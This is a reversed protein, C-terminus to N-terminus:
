RANKRRWKEIFATSTNERGIVKGEIGAEAMAVEIRETIKRVIQRQSGKSRKLARELVRYRFPYLYRLGLDELSVKLHNIGLRNAIPAYIELTERAIRAQKRRPMAGMTRMNHLRDALKVLIVRIDEIMALMM